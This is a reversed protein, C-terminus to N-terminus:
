STHTYFGFLFIPIINRNTGNEVGKSIVSHTWGGLEVYEFGLPQLDAVMSQVYRTRHYGQTQHKDCERLNGSAPVLLGFIDFASAGSLQNANEKNAM